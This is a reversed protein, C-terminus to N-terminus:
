KYLKKLKVYVKEDKSDLLEKARKLLISKLGIKSKNFEGLLDKIDTCILYELMSKYNDRDNIQNDGSTM